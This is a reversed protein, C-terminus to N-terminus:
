VGKFVTPAIGPVFHYLVEIFHTGHGSLDDQITVTDGSIQWSRRHVISRLRGGLEAEAEVLVEADNSTAM